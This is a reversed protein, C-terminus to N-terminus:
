LSTQDATIETSDATIDDRDATLPAYLYSRDIRFKIDFVPHASDAQRREEVRFVLNVLNRSSLNFTFRAGPLLADYLATRKRLSVSGTLPPLANVRGAAMVMPRAVSEKTVWGRDLTLPDPEGTISIVAPAPHSVMDDLFSRAGNIFKLRTVSRASQWDEPLFKVRGICDADTIEPLAGASPRALAIGLLGDTGNVPYGDFYELLQLLFQRCEQQRTLLPSLGVGEAELQAASALMMETNFRATDLGCGARPHQLLECAAAIPNADGAIDPLDHWDARAKKELVAEINPVNTQNFGLFLEEFVGTCIGPLPPLDLGLEILLEDREQNETGWHLRMIGYDPILIRVFLPNDGDRLVPPLKVRAIVTGTAPSAPSGFIPFTFKTASTVTIVASGNYDGQSAGEVIVEEGTARGHPNTTTFTAVGGSSTLSVARLSVDSTYVSEGNLRLDRLGDVPGHCFAAVFSAYYNYGSKSKQKGSGQVVATARQQFVDTIFTGSVRRVGSFWPVPRAAENTSTHAEDLGLPKQKPQPVNNTSGFM